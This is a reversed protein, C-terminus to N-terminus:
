SIVYAKKASMYITIGHNERGPFIMPRLADHSNSLWASHM